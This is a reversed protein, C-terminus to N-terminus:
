GFTFAFLRYQGNTKLKLTHRGAKRLKVLQYLRSKDPELSGNKVDPTDNVLKGDIEVEISGGTGVPEIVLFVDKSQFGLTLEGSEESLIFERKFTWRGEISWEGNGPAEVQKYDHQKNRIPEAESTFGSTRHYGLYLEETSSQNRGKKQKEARDPPEIGAEDLLTRIVKESVDYDGEGFHFYRIRGEHDIFYKAPWYRNRYAKWQAFENDLVVPWNVGLEEMARRVNEPSREFAFEPSHVGIIVLGADEYAEHWSSLYPITRVCNICSYTWFDILVVKGRLEELRLPLNETNFWEGETVIEPAMGYDGLIGNEPQIDFSPVGDTDMETTQASNRANIADQVPKINEFVTLGTGYRPFVELVANQFRRDLGFGIALGVTIMLIGFVQQLKGSKVALPPLKKILARGGIMVALM